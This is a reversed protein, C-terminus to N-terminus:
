PVEFGGFGADQPVQLTAQVRSVMEYYGVLSTLAVLHADDLQKSMAEWLEDTVAGVDVADVFALLTQEDVDFGSHDGDRLRLLQDETVGASLAVPVHHGWCYENRMLRGVELIALERMRLDLMTTTARLLELQLRAVDPANAVARQLNPPETGEAARQAREEATVQGYQVRM